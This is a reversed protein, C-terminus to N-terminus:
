GKKAPFRTTVAPERMTAEIWDGFIGILAPNFPPRQAPRTGRAARLEAMSGDLTMGHGTRPVEVFRATGPRYYNVVEAIMKHDTNDIAAVDGEGYVSLVNSRTDRWAAVLRQKSLGQWYRYHRGMVQDGGNWDLITRLQRDHEPNAAALQAPTKGGLLLERLVDRLAESQTESEVPDAGAGTFGQIRYINFIYDHWNRMVTGYAAVGRPSVVRSALLPAEIGGMSHGLMFIRDPAIAHKEMLTRYGTEFGAMETDFDSDQCAPGGRSDGAQPKEIRYVSIGRALLGDFLLRHPSQDSTTEFSDCTYGQILFVVPGKAGGPPTVFVERLLGGRFPVAGYQAVGNKYTERPREVATATLTQKQGNRWITMRVPKGAELKAAVGSFAPMDGIPTGNVDLVIDGVRLGLKEATLGPAVNDVRVGQGADGAQSSTGTVGFATSRPLPDAPKAATFTGLLLAACVTRMTATTVTGM